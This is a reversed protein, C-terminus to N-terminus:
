SDIIVVKKKKIFFFIHVCVYVIVVYVYFAKTWLIAIKDKKKKEIINKSLINKRITNKRGKTLLQTEHYTQRQFFCKFM